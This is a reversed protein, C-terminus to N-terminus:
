QQIRKQITFGSYGYTDLEEMTSTFSQGYITKLNLYAQYIVNEWVKIILPDLNDKQCSYYFLCISAAKLQIFLYFYM